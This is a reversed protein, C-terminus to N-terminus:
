MQDVITLAAATAATAAPAANRVRGAAAIPLVVTLAAVGSLQQLFIALQRAIRLELAIPDLAFGIMLIRLMIEADEVLVARAEFLLLAAGAIVFIAVLILAVLVHDGGVAIALILALAVIKIAAAAVVAGAAVKALLAAFSTLRAFGALGSLRALRAFIALRARAVGIAFRAVALRTLAVARPAAPGAPIRVALAAM